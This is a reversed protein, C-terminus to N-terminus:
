SGRWSLAPPSAIYLFSVIKLITEKKTAYRETPNTIGFPFRKIRKIRKIRQRFFIEDFPEMTKANYICISLVTPNCIRGFPRSNNYPCIQTDARQTTAKEPPYASGSRRSVTSGKSRRCLEPCSLPPIIYLM